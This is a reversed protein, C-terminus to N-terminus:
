AIATASTVATSQMREELMQLRALDEQAIKNYHNYKNKLWLVEFKVADNLAQTLKPNKLADSSFIVKRTEFRNLHVTRIQALADKSEVSVAGGVVLELGLPLSKEAVNMVCKTIEASNCKERTYGKSHVFDVRGFVVGSVADSAGAVKLISDLNDYALQTELNYLFKVDDRDSGYVKKICQDYKSLAYASEVMPAIVFDVGFEKCRQLDSVAECGGIKIALKLGAKWALEALRLIEDDRSGEAEYEAKLGVINYQEKGKILLELMEHEIKNM